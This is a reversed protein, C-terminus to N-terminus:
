DKFFKITPISMIRFQQASNPTVDVNVKLFVIDKMSADQSLEEFRPKMVKCPGCWEAWFDVIVLKNSNIIESFQADSGLDILNNAM